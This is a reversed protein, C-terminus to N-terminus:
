ASADAQENFARIMALVDPDATSPSGSDFPPQPDYEIALQIGQAVEAGVLEATLTLAMDIGASVGAATIIKGNRVVRQETPAAGYHALDDYAMWHTTAPLGDLLGAAGLVLAGTCVSTTWTTTPHSNAVWDVIPHREAALRRTVFGGPVVIVDPDAVDDFTHDVRLHLLDNEDSVTGAEAACLVTTAGPISSLVQYPGLADLSTFKDYLGIAITTMDGCHTVVNM